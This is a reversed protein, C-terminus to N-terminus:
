GGQPCTREVRLAPLGAVSTDLMEERLLVPLLNDTESLSNRGACSAHIKCPAHRERVQSTQSISAAGQEGTRALARGVHMKRFFQGTNRKFLLPVLICRV